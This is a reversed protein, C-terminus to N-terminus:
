VIDYILSSYLADLEIKENKKEGNSTNLENGKDQGIELYYDADENLQDESTFFTSNSAKMNSSTEVSDM